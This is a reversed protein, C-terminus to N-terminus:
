WMQHLLELLQSAGEVRRANMHLYFDGIADAAIRELDAQAIPTDRLRVPMRLDRYFDEIFDAARSAALELGLGDRVGLAEALRAQGHATEAANFRMGWATTLSWAAGHSLEPYLTDIVHGVSSVIGFSRRSMGDLARNNLFAAACLNILVAPDRPETRVLPLNDLLLRLAQLYDGHSIPNADPSAVGTAVTSLAGAAASLHLDPPATLLAEHDWIVAVPLTKPDYLELRDRTEVDLVATGARTMATTPTTLVQINPIKPASLRPSVPPKGPPYQTCIGHIDAREALLITIARATVVASGGGIAIVLDAGAERAAATGALISPLPSSGEVGAFVVPERYGLFAVVRDVLNTRNAVSRGCVLFPREVKLRDVESRLHVLADKGAHLNFRFSRYRFPM